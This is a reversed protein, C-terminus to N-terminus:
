PGVPEADPWDPPLDPRVTAVPELGAIQIVKCAMPTPRCLVVPRRADGGSDGIDVLFGLLTSGIFTVGGLDVYIMSAGAEILQGAALDLKPSDALDVDGAIRVYDVSTGRARTISLKMQSQLNITM